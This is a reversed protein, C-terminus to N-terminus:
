VDLYKLSDRNAYGEFEGYKPIHVIETRRFLRHYPIFKYRGEQIFKVIGQGALVVNRPNWTFKYKWPNEEESPALLGGTFTEFGILENGGDRIKDISKMASMHDIGPDLGCENLFVLDKKEAEEHLARMEDNVYSATVLHRSQKLCENAVLTHFRAPLMSIVLDAKEIEVGLQVENTVNFAFGRAIGKGKKQALAEDADGIALEWNKAESINLLYEILTSASQGAGLLLIKKM